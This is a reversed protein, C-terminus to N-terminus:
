TGAVRRKMQRVFDDLMMKRTCGNQVSSHKIIKLESAYEQSSLMINVLSYYTAMKRPIPHCSYHSSPTILTQLSDTRTVHYAITRHKNITIDLLNLENEQELECTHFETQPIRRSNGNFIVFTDNLYRRYFRSNM